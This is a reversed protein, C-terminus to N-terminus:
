LGSGGAKNQGNIDLSHVKVHETDGTKTYHENVQGAQKTKGFHGSESSINLCM